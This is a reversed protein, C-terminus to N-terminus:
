TNTLVQIVIITEDLGGIGVRTKAGGSIRVIGLSFESGEEGM